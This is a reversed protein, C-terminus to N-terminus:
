DTRPHQAIYALITSVYIMFPPYPVLMAGVLPNASRWWDVVCWSSVFVNAVSLLFVASYASWKFFLDPAIAELGLILLMPISHLMMQPERYLILAYLSVSLGLCFHVIAWMAILFWDSAMSSPKRLDIWYTGTANLNVIIPIFAVCFVFGLTLFFTACIRWWSLAKPPTIDRLLAEISFNRPPPPEWPRIEALQQYRKSRSAM